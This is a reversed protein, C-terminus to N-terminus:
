EVTVSHIQISGKKGTGNWMKFKRNLKLGIRYLICYGDVYSKNKSGTLSLLHTLIYFSWYSVLGIPFWFVWLPHLQNLVDIEDSLHTVKNDTTYAKKM